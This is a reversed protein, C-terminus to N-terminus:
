RPSFLMLGVTIPCLCCSLLMLQLLAPLETDVDASAAAAAAVEAATFAPLNTAVNGPDAAAAASNLCASAHVVAFHSQLSSCTHDTSLPLVSNLLLLLLYGLRLKVLLLWSICM